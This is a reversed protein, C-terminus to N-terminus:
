TENVSATTHVLVNNDMIGMKDFHAPKMRNKITAPADSLIQREEGGLFIIQGPMANYENLISALSSLPSKPGPRRM